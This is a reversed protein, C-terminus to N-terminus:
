ECIGRVMSNVELSRRYSPEDGLLQNPIFVSVLELDFDAWATTSQHGNHGFTNLTSGKGYSTTASGGLSVGHGWCTRVKLTRDLEDMASVEVLQAVTEPRVIRVGDLQGRNVLMQYFRALDSSTMWGTAAPMPMRRMAEANWGGRESNGQPVHIRGSRFDENEPLGLFSDQMKLPEFIEDHMFQEVPKGSVRRVLEGLVWGYNLPHYAVVEGAPFLPTVEEMARVVSEWPGPRFSTPDDPFGGRHTLVHRITIPEKGNQAFEPWYKAVTNDLELEDREALLHICLATIPKTASYLLNLTRHTMPIGESRRALGMAVNFVIKGRRRITMQLGPEWNEAIQRELFAYLEALKQPNVGVQRPDVEAGFAEPTTLNEEGKGKTEFM